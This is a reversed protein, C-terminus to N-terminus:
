IDPLTDPKKRPLNIKFESLAARNGEEM